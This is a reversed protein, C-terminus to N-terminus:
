DLVSRQVMTQWCCVLRERLRAATICCALECLLRSCWLFYPMYPISVLFAAATAALYATLLLASRAWAAGVGLALTVLACIWQAVVSNLGGRWLLAVNDVRELAAGGAGGGMAAEAATIVGYDAVEAWGGGAAAGESRLPPTGLLLYTSVVANLLALLTFGWRLRLEARYTEEDDTPTTLVVISGVPLADDMDQELEGGMGGRGATSAGVGRDAMDDGGDSNVVGDVAFGVRLEGTAGDILQCPARPAM